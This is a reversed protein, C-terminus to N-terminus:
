LDSVDADAGPAAAEFEADGEGPQADAGDAKGEATPADEDTAANAEAYVIAIEFKISYNITVHTKTTSDIYDWWDSNRFRLLHRVSDTEVTQGQKFAYVHKEHVKGNVTKVTSKEGADEEGGEGGDAAKADKGTAKAKGKKEAEKVAGEVKDAADKGHLKMQKLAETASIKEALLANRIKAPAASLKLLDRLYRDTINLRKAIREHPVQLNDLRKALLATEYVSLPQGTNRTKLGVLQDELTETQPSIIVPLPGIEVGDAKLRTVAEHRRHGDSIYIVDGDEEQAVFGTLPRTRDFGNERILAMLDAVQQEYADNRVRINFDDRIKLGEVPVNFLGGAAAREQSGEAAKMAKSIQGATMEADYKTTPIVVSM